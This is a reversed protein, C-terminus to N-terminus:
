FSFLVLTGMGQGLNSLRRMVGGRGLGGRLRLAVSLRLMKNALTFFARYSLFLSDGVFRPVIRSIPAFLDPYPPTGVLWVAALGSLLARLLYIAATEWRGDWRSAVFVLTFLAPYTALGLVPLFHLCSVLVLVWVLAYAAALFTVSTSFVASFVLALVLIIKAGASARHWASRGSSAWYDVIALDLNMRAGAFDLAAPGRARARARARALSESQRAGPFARGGGGGRGRGRHRRDLISALHPRAQRLAAVRHWAPRTALRSRRCGAADAGRRADRASRAHRQRHRRRPALR